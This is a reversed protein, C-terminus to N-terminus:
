KIEKLYNLLEECDAILEILTDSQVCDDWDDTAYTELETARGYVPVALDVIKELQDKTLKM